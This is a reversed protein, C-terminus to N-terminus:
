KREGTKLTLMRGDQLIIQGEQHGHGCCSGRMNIGGEQLAKVIPAICKDINAQKWKVEGTSSLDVPIKVNVKEYEDQCMKIDGIGSIAM